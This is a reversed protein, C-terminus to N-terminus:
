SQGIRVAVGAERSGDHGQLLRHGFDQKRAGAVHLLDDLVAAIRLLRHLQQAEAAPLVWLERGRDEALQEPLNTVRSDKSSRNIPVSVSHPFSSKGVISTLPAGFCGSQLSEEKKTNLVFVNM